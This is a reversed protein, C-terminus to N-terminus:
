HSLVHLWPGIAGVLYLMTLAALIGTTRAAYLVAGCACALVKAGLLAPGAGALAIWTQLLPNAEASAGFAAVVVYTM